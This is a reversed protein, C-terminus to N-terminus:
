GFLGALPNTWGDSLMDRSQSLLSDINYTPAGASQGAQYPLLSNNISQIFADRLAYPSESSVSGDVGRYQATFGPEPLTPAVGQRGATSSVSQTPGTSWPLEPLPNYGGIVTPNSYIGPPPGSRFQPMSAPVQNPSYPTGQPEAMPQAQGSRYPMPALSGASDQAQRLRRAEDATPMGGHIKWRQPPAAPPAVPQPSPQRSYRSMDAPPMGGHIQGSRPSYTPSANSTARPFQAMRRSAEASTNSYETGYPAWSDAIIKRVKDYDSTWGGAANAANRLTAPIGAQSERNRAM